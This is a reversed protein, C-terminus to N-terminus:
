REHMIAQRIWAQKAPFMVIRDGELRLGLDLFARELSPYPSRWVWRRALVSFVDTGTVRDLAAVVETARMGRTAARQQQNLAVVATDLSQQGETRRRLEMDALLAFAAGAWYVRRFSYEEYMRESGRALSGRADAGFRAGTWMRSWAARVSHDGARVRLVEQYYTAFGESLWADRRDVFPLWLHSFEHVSTWEKTLRRLTAAGGVHFSIAAGGGRTVFGFDIGGSGAMGPLLIVLAREVPFRADVAAVSRAAHSLWPVALGAIHDAVGPVTAVAFRAGAAEFSQEEFVGVVTRSRLGFVSADPRYVGDSDRPWAAIFRGGRPPQVRIRVGSFVQWQRRPPRWLWVGARVVLADGYRRGARALDVHYRVCDGALADSLDIRGPTLMLHRERQGPRQLRPQTLWTRAATVGAVLADPPSGPFCVRVNAAALDAQWVVEYELM